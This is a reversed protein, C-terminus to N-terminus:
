KKRWCEEVGERTRDRELVKGKFEDKLNGDKLTWWKIKRETQGRKRGKGGEIEVEVMLLKHQAAVVKGNIVKCNRIERLHQRRCKVKGREM